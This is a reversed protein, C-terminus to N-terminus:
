QVHDQLDLAQNYDAMAEEIVGLKGRVEARLNYVLADNPKLSLAKSLDEEALEYQKLCCYLQARNFYVAAWFPCNEVVNAFDERAEEYKKLITNAIARNMMACKNEPDFKLAKSFYDSAQSFQRHHLYINGANFYALSYTPNLSVAAQYDKMANQQQGMFEHIVGRNTLFEATTNIKIATNIDQMAAFNDSMQLCVVARGEYALYSKPDVEIAITFHHWAKQFKEQAQLNYGLSIRAKIYTPDFHLARLFDKQAQKTAEDHGYEMYSNGRGVYADLFCPNINIAWTFFNVAEEFEGYRYYCMATAQCLGVNTKSILAAQKFDELAFSYQELEEYILGRNIFTNLTVTEGANLLLVIGYDTLAMRLEGIRTFCLARNYFAVYSNKDMNIATTLDTIALKYTKNYYKLVGRYIYARVSQPYIKIAENCNLIAKSYRGKLGYFAVRSLYAEYYKPDLTIARNFDLISSDKRLKVKCLGRQYFGEALDPNAKVAKTFCDFAMQLNGEDMYCLGLNYLCDASAAVANPGKDSHSFIDLAKKFMRVAEKSRKAKMQSKALLTYTTIEPRNLIIGDLVQIAKDHNECFSYILAQQIPSLEIHGKNMEAVQYITFKALDYCKMMLLYQGRIIYLQIGDPQLHIAYSLERVAKKLEHLKHYIEARCIYSRIYLPDLRIAESFHWTAEIYNDLHRLYILGINIYAFTVTRELSIVTEFDCIALVWLKLDAYLIGRHLFCGLNEYGDNILASVSYDQLARLPNSKRFLCGRYYLALWNNPDLHIAISFDQTALKYFCRKFYARGRYTRAQSNQPDVNLLATFDQIAANWNENEYFFLGRKLLADIRQPDYFICKSFDDIALVKNTIEYMEGRRFYMDADMPKCKIAQTYNLIALTIDNKRRFIEAKSLYAEANNKNYKNIYNLDDLAESIKDQFLYILHRHWYANLFLPELLIAEQLDNMASQLKGLKRYIAGRRCYLFAPYIKKHNIEETLIKVESEYHKIVDPPLSSMLSDSLELKPPEKVEESLDKPVFIKVVKERATTKQPKHKSFLDVVWTQPDTNEPIGGRSQAFKDFNLCSPLSPSQFPREYLPIKLFYKKQGPLIGHSMSRKLIKPSKSLEELVMTVRRLKWGKKWKIRKKKPYVIYSIGAKKSAEVLSVSLDTVSYNDQITDLITDINEKVIPEETENLEVMQRRELEKAKQFMVEKINNQMNDKIELPVITEERLEVASKVRKLQLSQTSFSKQINEFSSSKKLYFLRLGRRSHQNLTIVSEKSESSFKEILIRSAQVSEEGLLQLYPEQARQRTGQALEPPIAPTPVYAQKDDIAPIGQLIRSGEEKLYSVSSGDKAGREKVQMDLSFRLKEGACPQKSTSRRGTMELVTLLRMVEVQTLLSKIGNPHLVAGETKEGREIDKKKRLKQDQLPKTPKRQQPTGLKSKRTRKVEKGKIQLLESSRVKLSLRKAAKMDSKPQEDELPKSSEDAPQIELTEQPTFVMNEAESPTWELMDEQEIQFISTINEPLEELVNMQPEEISIQLGQETQAQSTKHWYMKGTLSIDDTEDEEGPEGVEMKIDYNQGLVSQILEKITQDSALQAESQLSAIIEEISKPIMRVPPSAQWAAERGDSPQVMERDAKSFSGMERPESAAGERLFHTRIRVRRRLLAAEADGEESSVSSGKGERAKLTEAPRTPEPQADRGRAPAPAPELARKLGLPRPSWRGWLAGPKERPAPPPRLVVPRSTGARTAIVPPKKHPRHRLFASSRLYFDQPRFPRTKGPAAGERPGSSRTAVQPAQQLLAAAATAPGIARPTGSPTQPGACSVDGDEGPGAPGPAQLRFVPVEDVAPKSALKQKFLLFDKKTERRVKELEKFIYLEEKYKLGFHKSSTSMKVFKDQRRHRRKECESPSPQCRRPQASYGVAKRRCLPPSPGWRETSLLLASRRGAVLRSDEAALAAAAPGQGSPDRRATM